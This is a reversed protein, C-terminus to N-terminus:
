QRTDMQHCARADGTVAFLAGAGVSAVGIKAWAAASRGASPVGAVQRGAAAQLHLRCPMTTGAKSPARVLALFTVAQIVWCVALQLRLIM